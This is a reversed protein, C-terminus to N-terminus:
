LQEKHFFFRLIFYHIADSYKCLTKFSKHFLLHETMDLIESHISWLLCFILKNFFIMFIALSLLYIQHADTQICHLVIHM